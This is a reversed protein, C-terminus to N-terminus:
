PARYYINSEDICLGSRRMWSSLKRAQQYASPLQRNALFTRIYGRRERICMLKESAGQFDM